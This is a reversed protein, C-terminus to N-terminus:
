EFSSDFGDTFKRMTYQKAKADYYGFIYYNKFRFTNQLSVEKHEYLFRSIFDVALPEQEKESHKLNKDLVSEFYLNVPKTNILLDSGFAFNGNMAANLGISYDFATSQAERTGGITILIEKQTKYVTLGVNLFLLRQLFKFTNKVESPKQGDIQAFLPSNKFSITDKKSVQFSNISSGSTYDKIEFVIEQENVSLQYLKNDNFFSNSLSQLTKTIPQQIKKEQISFSNLDIDFLQTEKYNHDFTLLIRNKLLYLKTKQTGRFLPTFENTQLTEIPFVDLIEHLTLAETKQNQFKFSSFDLIKQEKKGNKFIYLVLQQATSKESIIYFGNDTQFQSLIFEQLFPLEYVLSVTTKANLDYQVALIHKLDQSSWYLTPTANDDFSYGLLIKYDLNPRSMVLTDALFLASNYKLITVNEKDTGFVFVEHTKTNEANIIQQYARSKKLELPYSSLVTQGFLM